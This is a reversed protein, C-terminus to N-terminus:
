ATERVISRMVVVIVVALGIYIVTFLALPYVLGTMPTVADATKVLGSVVWPQRGVETVTWGAETAVFGFPTVMTLLRLLARQNAFTGRWLAFLGWVSALAM